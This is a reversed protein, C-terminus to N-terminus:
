RSPLLALVVLGVVLLLLGPILVPLRSLLLRTLSGPGNSAAQAVEALALEDFSLGCSRCRSSWGLRPTQCAPCVMTVAGGLDLVSNLTSAPIEASPADAETRDQRCSYCRTSGPRNISHCSGCVWQGDM